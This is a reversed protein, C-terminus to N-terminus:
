DQALTLRFGFTSGKGPISKVTVTSHHMTAIQQAISLGLGYGDVHEKSRSRDARYFREFIHPLDSAKVGQGEDAVEVIAHKGHTSNRVIIKSHASSYKIANDLLIVFLEALAPDALKRRVSEAKASDTVDFRVQYQWQSIM